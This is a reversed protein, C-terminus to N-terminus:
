LAVKVQKSLKHLEVDIGEFSEVFVDVGWLLYVARSGAVLLSGKGHEVLKDGLSLSIYSVRVKM